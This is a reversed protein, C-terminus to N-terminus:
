NRPAPIPQKTPPLPKLHTGGGDPDNGAQGHTSFFCFFVYMHIFKSPATSVNLHM